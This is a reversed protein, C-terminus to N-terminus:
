ELASRPRGPALDALRSLDAGQTMAEDLFSGSSARLISRTSCRLQRGKAAGWHQVLTALLLRRRFPSIVPPLADIEDPAERADFSTRM